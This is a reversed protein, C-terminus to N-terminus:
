PKNVPVVDKGDFPPSFVVFAITPELGTNVYYHVTGRPVYVIDGTSLEIRKDGLILYGHGSIMMVTGDHARHFHPSERNRIQVIHHSVGPGQGLTTMKINENPGLPNDAAVKAPDIRKLETGYQLFLYPVPACGALLFSLLLAPFAGRACCRKLFLPAHPRMRTRERPRINKMLENSIKAM